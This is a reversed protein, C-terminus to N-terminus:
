ERAAAQRRALGNESRHRAPTAHPASRARELHARSCQVARLWRRTRVRSNVAKVSRAGSRREPRGARTRRHMKSLEVVHQRLHRMPQTLAGRPTRCSRAMPRMRVVLVALMRATRLCSMEVSNWLIAFFPAPRAEAHRGVTHEGGLFTRSAKPRYRPCAVGSFGGIPSLGAFPAASSAPFVMLSM